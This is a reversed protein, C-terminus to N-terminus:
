MQKWKVNEKKIFGFLIEKLSLYNEVTQKLTDKNLHHLVKTWTWQKESYEFRFEVKTKM